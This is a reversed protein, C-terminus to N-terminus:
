AAMLERNHGAYRIWDSVEARDPAKGGRLIRRGRRTEVLPEIEAFLSEPDFEAVAEPSTVGAAVLLQADHGRLMPVRCVLIAQQQWQRVVEEDVRRHDLEEALAEPDADLLDDVSEFGIAALREAMRPGIAPAEELPSDRHLYFRLEESDSRSGHRKRQHDGGDTESPDSGLDEDARGDIRVVHRRRATRRSSRGSDEGGGTRRHGDRRSSARGAHARGDRDRSVRRGNIQLGVREDASRNAAALWSTIRSLEYSTGSLLIRQGRETALFAEVRKLLDTPHMSALQAPSTIGCGVLIRADFGRLQPVRCVLRCEQQWRRIAAADVNSLGLADALRNSDERMLHNIHTVGLGRLRAAAVADLSPAQDIPSDVSLFFPAHPPEHPRDAGGAASLDGTGRRARVSVTDPSWQDPYTLQGGAPTTRGAPNAHREPSFPQARSANPSRSWFGSSSDRDLEDASMVAVGNETTYTDAYYYGDRMATAPEPCDTAEVDFAAATGGSDDPEYTERWAADFHRNIADPSAGPRRTRSDPSADADFRGYTHPHPGVYHEGNQRSKWLPRHPQIVREAILRRTRSGGRELAVALEESSTLVVLQHGGRAYDSLASAVAPIGSEPGTSLLERPTELVLPVGRGSGALADGAAMRVAIAALGRDAAPCDAEPRGDIRLDLRHRMEAADSSVDPRGSAATECPDVLGPNWDLRRLRGASLRVLWHSAAHALPSGESGSESRVARLQRNLEAQRRRLADIRSGAALQEDIGRIEALTAERDTWEPGPGEDIRRGTSGGDGGGDADGRLRRVLSARRRALAQPDQLPAPLRALDALVDALEARLGRDRRDAECGSTRADPDDAAGGNGGRPPNAAELGAKSCAYVVRAVSTLATDTIVGDVVVEPVRIAELALSADTTASAGRIWSRELSDFRIPYEGRSEFEITRRGRSTGDQERRCHVLGHRDAWVVRGTSSNLMGLPYDRDILSDRVFRVIATKGAGEPAVITNLQEVLPGLEVRHLSGHNDIDIRELYM